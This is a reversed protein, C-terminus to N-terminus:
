FIGSSKEEKKAATKAAPKRRRRASFTLKKDVADVTVTDGKKINGELLEEALPDELKTQLARRLPRAGYKEDYGAEILYDKAADTLNLRIEMQEKVRGAIQAAM